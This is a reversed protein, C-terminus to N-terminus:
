EFTREVVLAEGPRLARVRDTLNRWPQLQGSQYTRSMVVHISTQDGGLMAREVNPWEESRVEDKVTWTKGDRRIERRFRFPATASGTILLRQLLRRILNPYFRGVTLMTMRLVILKLPTMVPQKAWAFAGSVVIDRGPIEIGDVQTSRGYNLGSECEYEGHMHAVAVRGNKMLFSIQTDSAVLGGGIFLKFVGGKKTGVYIEAGQERVVELGADRLVFAGEEHRLPGPRDQRFHRWALLYSWTHHGVIHDDAYCPLRGAAIGELIRDNLALASEDIESALEFGHPFYNYTNRSGYEGGFSGDPHLFQSATRISHSLALRVDERPESRHIQALAGITLTLYGPDCGGYEEFWGEEDHRWSMLRALRAEFQDHWQREGTMEHLRLLNLAILAEHNSLRGSEQHKALWAGRRRFFAVMAPDDLDFLKYSEICALLSFAAAGAAREYPFYDDCSGDSHASKMAYRIGAEVWDRIAQQRYFPNGDLDTDWALALPYIFEQAMGSPFDVIKYQWFNRDFCGYTPSLRNRDQLTLIKPIEALATRAFLEGSM